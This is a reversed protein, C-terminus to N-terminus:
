KIESPGIIGASIVLKMTQEITWGPDRTESERIMLIFGSTPNPPTPIYVKL